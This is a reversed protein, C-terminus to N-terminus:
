KAFKLPFICLSVTTIRLKDISIYCANIKAAIVTGQRATCVAHAEEYCKQSGTNREDPEHHGQQGPLEWRISHVYRQPYKTYRAAVPSVFQCCLHNRPNTQCTPICRESPFNAIFLQMLVWSLFEGGCHSKITTKERPLIWGSFSDFNILCHRLFPAHWKRTAHTITSSQFFVVQYQLFVVEHRKNVRARLSIPARSSLFRILPDVDLFCIVTCLM